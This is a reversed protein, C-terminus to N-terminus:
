KEVTELYKDVIRRMLESLTFCEKKSKNYLINYKEEPLFFEVKKISKKM